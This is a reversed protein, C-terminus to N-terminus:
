KSLKRVKRWGFICLEELDEVFARCNFFSSLVVCEESCPRGVSLRGRHSQCLRSLLSSLHVRHSQRDLRSLHLALYSSVDTRTFVPHVASAGCAAETIASSTPKAISSSASRSSTSACWPTTVTPTSPSASPADACLSALSDDDYTTCGSSHNCSLNSVSWQM